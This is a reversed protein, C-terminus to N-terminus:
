NPKAVRVPEYLFPRRFMGAMHNINHCLLAIKNAGSRAHNGLAVDWEFRYDNLWWLDNYKRQAVEEGNLYLACQNFLGPFKIHPENAAQSPTLDFDTRYWLDGLDSQGDSRRVGQAQVYLDTRVV